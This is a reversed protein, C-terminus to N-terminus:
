PLARIHEITEKIFSIIRQREKVWRAQLFAVVNGDFEVHYERTITKQTEASKIDGYGSLVNAMDEIRRAREGVDHENFGHTYGSCRDSEFYELCQEYFELAADRWDLPLDAFNITTTEGYIMEEKESDWSRTTHTLPRWVISYAKTFNPYPGGSEKCLPHKREHNGTSYYYRDDIGPIKLVEELPMVGIECETQNIIWNYKPHLKATAPDYVYFLETGNVYQEPVTLSDPCAGAIICSEAGTGICNFVYDSVLFKTLKFSSSAWLSPYETVSKVLYQEFTLM